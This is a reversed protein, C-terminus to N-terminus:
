EILRRTPRANVTCFGTLRFDCLMSHKSPTGARSRCFRVKFKSPYVSSKTEDTWLSDVLEAYIKAIEGKKGLPNQVNIDSNHMGAQFYATLEPVNSLCQLSSNMFCTNGLNGLGVLGRPSVSSGTSNTERSRDSHSRLNYTNAKKELTGDTMENRNKLEAVLREKAKADNLPWDHTADDRQEVIVLQFLYFSLLYVAEAFFPLAPQANINCADSRWM